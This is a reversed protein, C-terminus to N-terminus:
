YRVRLSFQIRRAAQASISRRFFTRDVRSRRAAGRGDSGSGRRRVILGGPSSQPAARLYFIAIALAALM